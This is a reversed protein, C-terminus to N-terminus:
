ERKVILEDSTDTIKELDSNTRKNEPVYGGIASIHAFIKKTFDVVMFNKENM